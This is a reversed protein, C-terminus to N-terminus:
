FRFYSYCSFHGYSNIRFYTFKIRWRASAQQFAFEGQLNHRITPIATTTSSELDNSCAFESQVKRTFIQSIRRGFFSFFGGEICQTSLRQVLAVTNDNYYHQQLTKIFQEFLQLCIYRLRSQLQFSLLFWWSRENRKPKNQERAAQYNRNSQIENEKFDSKYTRDMSATAGRFKYLFNSDRSCKGGLKLSLTFILINIPHSLICNLPYACIYGFFFWLYQM